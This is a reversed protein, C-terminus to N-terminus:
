EVEPDMLLSMVADGLIAGILALPVLPWLLWIVVAAWAPWDIRRHLLMMFLGAIAYGGVLILATTM